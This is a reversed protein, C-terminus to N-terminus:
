SESVKYEPWLTEADKEFSTISASAVMCVILLLCFASAVRMKQDLPFLSNRLSHSVEYYNILFYTFIITHDGTRNLDFIQCLVFDLVWNPEALLKTGTRTCFCLNRAATVRM